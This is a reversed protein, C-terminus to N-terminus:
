VTYVLMTGCVCSEVNVWFIYVDVHMEVISLTLLAGVLEVFVLGHM